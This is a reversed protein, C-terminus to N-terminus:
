ILDTLFEFETIKGSGNMYLPNQSNPKGFM